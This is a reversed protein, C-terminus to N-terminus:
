KLKAVICNWEVERNKEILEFEKFSNFLDDDNIEKGYIYSYIKSSLSLVDICLKSVFEDRSIYGESTKTVIELISDDDSPLTILDFIDKNLISSIKKLTETNPERTNNEYNAYTSRPINLKEAMQAQTLGLDKRIEKLKDGIIIFDNLGM